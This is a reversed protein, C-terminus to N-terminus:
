EGEGANAPALQVCLVVLLVVAAGALTWEVWQPFPNAAPPTAVVPPAPVVAPAPSSAVDPAPALVDAAREVLVPTDPVTGPPTGPSAVLIVPHAGTYTASEMIPAQQGAAAAAATETERTTAALPAAMEVIRSTSSDTVRGISLGDAAPQTPVPGGFTEVANTEDIAERVALDDAEIM